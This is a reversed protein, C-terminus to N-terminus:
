SCVIVISIRMLTSSGMWDLSRESEISVEHITAAPQGSNLSFVKAARGTPALLSIKYQLDLLTRVIVSALSTKGTGASGRLIMVCREDSDTMFREFVDLAHMQDTSPDFPFNRLIQYMLSDYM